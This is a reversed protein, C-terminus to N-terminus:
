KAKPEAADLLSVIEGNKTRVNIELQAGLAAVFRRLSALTIDSRRELKSVSAQQVGLRKALEAQTVGTIARLERLFVEQPPTTHTKEKLIKVARATASAADAFIEEPGEGYGDGLASASLGIGHRPSWTAIMVHDDLKADLFWNGTKSKARRIRTWVSPLATKLEQEMKEIPNM